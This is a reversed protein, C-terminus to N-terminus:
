HTAGSRPETSVMYTGEDRAQRTAQAQDSAGSPLQQALHTLLGGLITRTRRRRERQQDTLSPRDELAQLLWPLVAQLQQAEAVPFVLQVFDRHDGAVGDLPASM